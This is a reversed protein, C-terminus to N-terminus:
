SRGGPPPAGIFRRKTPIATPAAATRPSDAGAMAASPLTLTRVTSVVAKGVTLTVADTGDDSVTVGVPMVTVSFPWATFPAVTVGIPADPTGMPVASTTSVDDAM